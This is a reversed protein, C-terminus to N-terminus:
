HSKMNKNYVYTGVDHEIVFRMVKESLVLLGNSHAFFLCVVFCDFVYSIASVM